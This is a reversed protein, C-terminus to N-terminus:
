EMQEISEEISIGVPESNSEDSSYYSYTEDSDYNFGNELTNISAKVGYAKESLENQNYDCFIDEWSDCGHNKWILDYLDAERKVIKLYIKLMKIQEDKNWTNWDIMHHDDIVNLKELLIDTNLESSNESINENQQEM